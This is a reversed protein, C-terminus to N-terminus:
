KKEMRFIEIMPGPRSRNWLETVPSYTDEVNAPKPPRQDQFASFRRIPQEMGAFRRLADRREEYTDNLFGPFAAFTSVGVYGVPVSTSGLRSLEPSPLRDIFLIRSDLATSWPEPVDRYPLPFGYQDAAVLVQSHEETMLWRLCEIRTDVQKLLANGRFDKLLPEFLCLLLLFGAVPIRKRERAQDACAWIGEAAWYSFWPLVPLSFRMFYLPHGAILVGYCIPFIMSMWARRRVLTALGLLSFFVSLYGESMLWSRLFLFGSWIKEQGPWGTVTAQSLKKMEAQFTPPDLLPFPCVLLFGLLGLGCAIGVERGLQTLLSKREKQGTQAIWQAGGWGLWLTVGAAIANYKFAVAVGGLFSAVWFWARSNKQLASFGWGLTLTVLFTMATDNVAFHSERVNAFSVATLVAAFGAIRRACWNRAAWYIGLATLSGFVAALVRGGLVLDYPRNMWVTAVDRAPPALNPKM